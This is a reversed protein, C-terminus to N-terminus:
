RDNTCPHTSSLLNGDTSKGQRITSNWYVGAIIVGASVVKLLSVKEGLISSSLVIAFVPVLNEFATTKSAGISKIAFQQTLYGICSAFLAMYVVAAWGSWTTNPLCSLFDEAMVLPASAILCVLFSYTTLVIPSLNRSFRRSAVIYTAKCLSAAIMLFDGAKLAIDSLLNLNGDSITLLVGFFAMSVAAIRKLGLPEAAVFCALLTTIVPSTASILSTNIATTHQLSLFFLVHYGLMGTLGLLLVVPIDGRKLRWSNPELKVMIPFLVSTAILFRFFTLSFPPFEKVAIKGGVFAGAWFLAALTMLGYVSSDRLKMRHMPIEKRNLYLALSREKHRHNKEHGGQAAYFLM